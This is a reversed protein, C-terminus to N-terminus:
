QHATAIRRQEVPFIEGTPAVGVRVAFGGDDITLDVQPGVVLKKQDSFLGVAVEAQADVDM